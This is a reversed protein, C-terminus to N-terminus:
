VCKYDLWAMIPEYALQQEAEFLISLAIYLIFFIMLFGSLPKSLVWRSAVFIIIMIITILVLMVGALLVAAPDSGTTMFPEGWAFETLLMPLGIGLFINFVNSGIANAVAQLAVCCDCRTLSLIGCVRM